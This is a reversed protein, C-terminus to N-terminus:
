PLVFWVYRQRSARVGSAQVSAPGKAPRRKTLKLRNSNGQFKNRRLRYVPLITIRDPQQLLQVADNTFIFPVDKRIPNRPAYRAGTMEDGRFAVRHSTRQRQAPGAVIRKRGAHGEVRGRSALWTKQHAGRKAIRLNNFTIFTGVHGTPFWLTGAGYRGIKSRKANASQQVSGERGLSELM